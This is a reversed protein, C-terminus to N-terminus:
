IDTSAPKKTPRIGSETIPIVDERPSLRKTNEQKQTGSKPTKARLAV